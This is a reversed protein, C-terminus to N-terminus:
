DMENSPLTSATIFISQVHWLGYVMIEYGKRERVVNARCKTWESASSSMEAQLSKEWAAEGCQELAQQSRQGHRVKRVSSEAM